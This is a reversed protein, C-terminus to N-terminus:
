DLLVVPLYLGRTILVATSVTQADVLASVTATGLSPGATFVTYAAGNSTSTAVPAVSGLTGGFTTMIGDPVHGVSSTDTGASNVTLRATITSIGGRRHAFAPQAAVRLTLWPNADVAGSVGNSTASCGVGSAGPGYNCGWWNNEANLTGTYTGNPVNIATTNNIFRNVYVRVNISRGVGYPNATRIGTVNGVFTNETVTVGNDGGNFVMGDTNATYRNGRLTGGAVGMVNTGFRNANILNNTFALNIHQTVSGAAFNVAVNLTHNRFENEDVVLDHSIDTYLGTGPVPTVPRNNSDFLNHRVTCPGATIFLGMANDTIVNDLIQVHNAGGVWIGTNLGNYGHQVKFGDITVSVANVAFAATAGGGDVVSETGRSGRADVGANAGNLILTKNIKVNEAYTGAAVNITDGAAACNVAKQITKYVASSAPVPCPDGPNVTGTVPNVILVAALVVQPLMLWLLLGAAFVAIGAASVRSLSQSLRRSLM